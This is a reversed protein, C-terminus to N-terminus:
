DGSDAEVGSRGGAFRYNGGVPPQEMELASIGAAGAVTDGSHYRFVLGPRFAEVCVNAMVRM